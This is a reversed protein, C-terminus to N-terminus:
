MRSFVWGVQQNTCVSALLKCISSSDASLGKHHNLITSNWMWLIWKTKTWLNPALKLENTSIWQTDIKNRNHVSCIWPCMGYAHFLSLTMLSSITWSLCFSMLICKPISCWLIILEVEPSFLPVIPSSKSPLHSYLSTFCVFPMGFQSKTHSNRAWAILETHKIIPYSALPLFCSLYIHLFVNSASQPQYFWLKM